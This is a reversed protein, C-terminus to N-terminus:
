ILKLSLACNFEDRTAPQFILWPRYVTTLLFIVQNYRLSSVVLTLEVATAHVGILCVLTSLLRGNARSFHIAIWLPAQSIKSIM